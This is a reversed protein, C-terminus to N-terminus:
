NGKTGYQDDSPLISVNLSFSITEVHLSDTWDLAQADGSEDRLLDVLEKPLTLVGSFKLALAESSEPSAMWWLETLNLRPAVSALRPPVVLTSLMAERAGAMLCAEWISAGLSPDLPASRNVTAPCTTNGLLHSEPAYWSPTASCNRPPLMDQMGDLVAQVPAADPLGAQEQTSDMLDFFAGLDNGSPATVSPFSWLGDAGSMAREADTTNGSVLVSPMQIRVHTAEVLSIGCVQAVTELDPVM